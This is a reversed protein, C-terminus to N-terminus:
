FVIGFFQGLALHSSPFENNGGHSCAQGQRRCQRQHLLCFGGSWFLTPFQDKSVAIPRGSVAQIRTCGFIPHGLANM